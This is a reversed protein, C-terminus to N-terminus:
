EQYELVRRTTNVLYQRAEEETFFYQFETYIPFKKTVGTPVIIFHSFALGNGGTGVYISAVRWLKDVGSVKHHDIFESLKERYGERYQKFKNLEDKLNLTELTRNSNENLEIPKLSYWSYLTHGIQESQKYLNM